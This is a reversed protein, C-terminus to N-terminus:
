GATEEVKAEAILFDLAKEELLRGRTADMAEENGGYMERMRDADMGQEAAMSEIREEVVGDEVEVSEQKVVAELLLTERVEREVEPRWEQQMRGMQQQLFEPPLQQQYQQMFQQMKFQLMRDIMGDPVDFPSREALSALVTQRLTDKSQREKNKTMDEGIRTRLADLTDFGGFSKALEDDLEPMKKKEIAHVKCAFLAEKGALHEAHYEEPFTVNVDPADGVKAGVLQEEFGPIFQNSGIELQTGEAAGGEFLEGDVRGEYDIKVRDGTEAALEGEAAEWSAAREQIASLQSDIEADDVVTSHRQGSLGKLDGLVIEPMVEIRASYSFDSGEEAPKADVAPEAVPKLAVQDIAESLTDNILLSRVEDKVSSGYMKEIVSRPAKGRRFGKIEASKAIQKYTRDFAKGVRAADVTINLTRVVSSTEETEVRITEPQQSGDKSTM